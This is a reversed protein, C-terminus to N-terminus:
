RPDKQQKGSGTISFTFTLTLDQDPTFSFSLPFFSVNLEAAQLWVDESKPCMECGKAIIKRAAVMKKAHVELAAAAIWGPAHKPNTKIVSDLLARARKIDRHFLLHAPDATQLIPTAALSFRVRDARRVSRGHQQSRYPLRQPRSHNVTRRKGVCRLCEAPGLFCFWPVGTLVGLLWSRSFSAWRHVQDLKLSLMKDRQNGIEVLDTMAGSGPTSASMQEESLAGESQSQALNSLTVSDPIAYERDFRPNRKTKKGTMNSVEPLDAWDADTM